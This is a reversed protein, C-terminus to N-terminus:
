KLLFTVRTSFVSAVPKGMADLAPRFHRLSGCISQRMAPDVVPTQIVCSTANGQADVMFRVPASASLGNALMNAPYRAFVAQMDNMEPRASRSLSDQVAPDGGWAKVLSDVCTRLAALPKAIDGVNLQMVVNPDLGFVIGQITREYDGFVKNPQESEFQGAENAAKRRAYEEFPVFRIPFSVVAAGQDTTGAVGRLERGEPDTPLRVTVAKGPATASPIRKGSLSLWFEDRAGYSDIELLLPDGAGGYEQSLSCREDGYDLRWATTPGLQKPPTPESAASAVAALVSAVLGLVITINRM